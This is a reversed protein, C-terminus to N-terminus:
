LFTSLNFIQILSLPPDFFFSVLLVSSLLLLFLQRFSSFPSLQSFSSLASQFFLFFFQPLQILFSSTLAVLLFDLNSLCGTTVGERELVKFIFIKVKKSTHIWFSSSLIFNGVSSYFILCFENALIFVM